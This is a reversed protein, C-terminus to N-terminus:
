RLWPRRCRPDRRSFLPPRSACGQKSGSRQVRPGFRSRGHTLQDAVLRGSQGASGASRPSSRRRGRQRHCAGVRSGPRQSVKRLRRVATGRHNAPRHDLPRRRRGALRQKRSSRSRSPASSEVQWAPCRTAIDYHGRRPNQVFAHGAVFVQATRDTQFGRMPREASDTATIPKPRITEYQEVHHRACPFCSTSCPLTSRRPAARSRGLVEDACTM